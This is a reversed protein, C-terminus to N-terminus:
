DTFPSVVRFEWVSGLTQSPDGGPILEDATKPDVPRLYDLYSALYGAESRSKPTFGTRLSALEERVYSEQKYDPAFEGSQDNWPTHEFTVRVVHESDAYARPQGSRLTEITIRRKSM